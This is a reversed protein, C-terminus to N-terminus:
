LLNQLKKMNMELYIIYQIKEKMLSDVSITIEKNVTFSKRVKKIIDILRIKTKPAEM